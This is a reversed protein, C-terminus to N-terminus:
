RTSRNGGGIFRVAVIYSFNTSLPMLCMYGLGFRNVLILLFVIYVSLIFLSLYMANNHFNQKM